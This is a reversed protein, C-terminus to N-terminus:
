QWNTPTATHTRQWSIAKQKTPRRLSSSGTVNVFFPMIASNQKLIVRCMYLFRHIAKKRNVTHTITMSDGSAKYIHQKECWKANNLINKFRIDNTIKGEM